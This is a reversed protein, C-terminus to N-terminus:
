LIRKAQADFHTPFENAGTVALAYHPTVIAKGLAAFFTRGTAKSRSKGDEQACSGQSEDRGEGAYEEQPCGPHQHVEAVRGEGDRDGGGACTARDEGALEQHLQLM